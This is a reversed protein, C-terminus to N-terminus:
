HTPKGTKRIEAALPHLDNSFDHPHMPHAELLYNVNKAIKSVRLMEEFDDRGFQKSLVCVDVDSWPRPRGKAYSGFLILGSVVIGDKKLAARFEKVVGKLEKKTLIKKFVM